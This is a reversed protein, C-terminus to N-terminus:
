ELGSGSIYATATSAFWVTAMGRPLLTRNGTSADATNYLSLGSGQSITQNSGSDNVITIANGSAFISSPVTVGGSSIYIAKGADGSVLTYASSKSNAPISRLDGKSDAITTGTVAGTFTGGSLPMKTAISNTITTSFNADDGLAAALENLTNLTGPASDVLNSIATQVFATTAVSTNNTGANATTATVNAHLVGTAQTIGLLLNADDSINRGDVTGSIAMNGTVSVGYSETQFKKSGNYYLEVQTGSLARIMNTTDDNDRLIINGESLLKLGGGDSRIIFTGTNSDITSNSGDHNLTLDDGDGINIQGNDNLQIQGHVHIGDSLTNFKKSNDHYLEVGSDKIFNAMTDSGGQLTIKTGNTVLQLDGTGNDNIISHSGNHYILFDQSNGFRLNQSDGLNIHSSTTIEGCGLTGTTAVNQSGFDPSIKTGAIAASANIDANVITGNVIDASEITFNGSVNADAIKVDSPLTGAAIKSVAISDNALRGAISASSVNAMDEAAVPHGGATSGDHVVLTEKDTDVTVEGEAGTFSGHQTTTGRRLKLLKAM